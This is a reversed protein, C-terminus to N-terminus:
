LSHYNGTLVNRACLSARLNLDDIILSSPFQTNNLCTRPTKLAYNTPAPWFDRVAGRADIVHRLSRVSAQSYPSSARGVQGGRGYKSDNSHSSHRRRVQQRGAPWSISDDGDVFRVAILWFCCPYGCQDRRKRSCRARLCVCHLSATGMGDPAHMHQHRSTKCACRRRPPHQQVREKVNEAAVDLRM